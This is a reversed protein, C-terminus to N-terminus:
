RHMPQYHILIPMSGGFIPGSTANVDVLLGESSPLKFTEKPISQSAFSKICEESCNNRDSKFLVHVIM